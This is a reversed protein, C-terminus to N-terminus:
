AESSQYKRPEGRAKTMSSQLHGSGFEAMAENADGIPLSHLITCLSTDGVGVVQTLM